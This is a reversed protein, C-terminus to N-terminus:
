QSDKRNTTNHDDKLEVDITVAGKKTVNYYFKKINNKACVIRLEQVAKQLQEQTTM